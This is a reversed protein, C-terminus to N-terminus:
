SGQRAFLRLHVPRVEALEGHPARQTRQHGEHHHEGVRAMQEQAEIQARRHVVEDATMDLRERREIGNRPHQEVIIQFASHELTRAIRNAEM